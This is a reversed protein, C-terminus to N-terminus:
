RRARDILGSGLEQRQHSGYGPPSAQSLQRRGGDLRRWPLGSWATERRNPLNRRAAALGAMRGALSLWLLSRSTLWLFCASGATMRRWRFALALAKVLTTDAASSGRGATSSPAIMLKRWGRLKRAALPVRVTLMQAAGTM